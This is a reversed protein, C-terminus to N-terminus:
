FLDLPSLRLFDDLEMGGTGVLLTKHPHYKGKFVATGKHFHSASSKVEIGIIKDGHVLVFDVEHDRYRWYYLKLTTGIISNLLHAGIASEVQQGWDEPKLQIESLSEKRLASIFATNMVQLKPSSAKTRVMSGSYNEIGSMLTASELLKLYNALTTTNGADVLQRLM